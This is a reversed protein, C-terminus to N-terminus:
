EAASITLFGRNLRTGRRVAILAIQILCAYSNNAVELKAFGPATPMREVPGARKNGSM